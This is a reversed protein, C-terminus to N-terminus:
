EEKEQKLDEIIYTMVDLVKRLAQANGGLRHLEKDSLGTPCEKSGTYHDELEIHIADLWDLIENQIDSWLSSQSFDEFVALSNQKERM